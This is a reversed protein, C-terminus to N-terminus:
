AWLNIWSKLMILCLLSISWKVRLLQSIINVQVDSVKTLTKMMTQIEEEQLKVSRYLEKFDWFLCLGREVLM